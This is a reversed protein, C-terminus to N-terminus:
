ERRGKRSYTEAFDNRQDDRVQGAALDSEDGVLRSVRECYLSILHWLWPVEKLSGPRAGTRM